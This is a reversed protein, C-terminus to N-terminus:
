EAKSEHEPRNKRGKERESMSLILNLICIWSLVSSSKASLWKIVSSDELKVERKKSSFISIGRERRGGVVWCASEGNVRSLSEYQKSHHMQLKECDQRRGFRRLNTDDAFKM